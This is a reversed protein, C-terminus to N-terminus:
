SGPDPPTPVPPLPIPNGDADPRRGFREAWEYVTEGSQLLEDTETRLNRLERDGRIRWPGARLSIYALAGL